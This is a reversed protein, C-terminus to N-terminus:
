LMLHRSNSQCPFMGLPVDITNPACDPGLAVFSNGAVGMESPVVVVLVLRGPKSAAIMSVDEPPVVVPVPGKLVALGGTRESASKCTVM